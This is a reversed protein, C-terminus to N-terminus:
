LRLVTPPTILIESAVYWSNQLSCLFAYPAVIRFPVGLKCFGKGPMIWAHAREDNMRHPKRQAAERILRAATNSYDSSM